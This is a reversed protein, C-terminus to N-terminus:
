RFGHGPGDASGGIAVRGSSVPAPVTARRTAHEYAELLIAESQAWSLDRVRRRGAEGMTRRREPDDLLADVCAGLAAAEDSAAYAAADAASVRTEPLDFSAIARGMAMYEPIKAM